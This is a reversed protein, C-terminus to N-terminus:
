LNKKYVDKIIRKKIYEAKTDLEKIMEYTDKDNKEDFNQVLLDVDVLNIKALAEEILRYPEGKKGEDKIAEKGRELAYNLGKTVEKKWVNERQLLTLDANDKELHRIKKDASEVVKDHKQLFKSWVDQNSFIGKSNKPGGMINRYDKGEHGKRIYSFSTQKLIEMDLKQPLWNTIYKGKEYANIVSQLNLFLDENKLILSFRNPADIFELYEEMMLFTKHKNEADAKNKISTIMNAIDYYQIGNKYLKDIKLYKEIANYEVKEDEGMQIQTELAIMEDDDIDGPLIVANFYRFNEKNVNPYEDDDSYFIKRILTARRNGDIIRGDSTIVGYKMQGKKAIDKLTDKNSGVNSEWIFNEILELCEISNNLLDKGTQYKYERRKSAFRDNLHNYILYKVPIKYVNFTQNSRIPLKAGTAVPTGEFIKLIENKRVNENLEYRKKM